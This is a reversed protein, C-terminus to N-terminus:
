KPYVAYPSTGMLPIVVWRHASAQSASNCSHKVNPAWSLKLTKTTTHPPVISLEVAMTPCDENDGLQANNCLGGNVM